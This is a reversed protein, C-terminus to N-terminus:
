GTPLSTFSRSLHVSRAMRLARLERSKRVRAPGQSDYFKERHAASCFERRPRGKKARKVLFFDGCTKCRCLDNCLASMLVARGAEVRMSRVYHQPGDLNGLTDDPGDNDTAVSRLAAAFGQEFSARDFPVVQHHPQDRLVQLLEARYASILDPVLNFCVCVEGVRSMPLNGGNVVNLFLEVDRLPNKPDLKFHQM